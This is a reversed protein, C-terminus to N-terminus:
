LAHRRSEFALVTLGARGARDFGAPRVETIFAEVPMGGIGVIKDGNDFGYAAYHSALMVLRGTTTPSDGAPTATHAEVRTYRVQATVTVPEAYRLKVTTRFDEDWQTGSRDVRVIRVLTPHILRPKM